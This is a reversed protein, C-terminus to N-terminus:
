LIIEYKSDKLKKQIGPRLKKEKELYEVETRIEKTKQRNKDKMLQIERGTQETSNIKIKLGNVKQEIDPMFEMMMSTFDDLKKKM